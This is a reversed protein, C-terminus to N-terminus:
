KEVRKTIVRTPTAMYFSNKGLFREKTGLIGM